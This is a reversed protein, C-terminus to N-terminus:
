GEATTAICPTLDAEAPTFVDNGVYPWWEPISDVRVQYHTPVNIVGEADSYRYGPYIKTIVGTCSRGGSKEYRVRQGIQMENGRPTHATTAPGRCEPCEVFGFEDVDDNIPDDAETWGDGGCRQCCDDEDYPESM